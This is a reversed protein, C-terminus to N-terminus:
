QTIALLEIDLNPIGKPAYIMISSAELMREYLTGSAELVFYTSRPKVPIAAPLQSAHALRIGSLASLVINSVDEPSGIKLRQPIKEILEAAPLDAQIGLYFAADGKLLHTDLEGQYYSPKTEILKIDFHNASFVTNIQSNIIKFLTEFSAQPQEHQYIPLDTLKYTASFTLLAGAIRSLEIHLQEPTASPHRYFHMLTAYASNISHLMWFSAMDGSRFEVINETPNSFLSYLTEARARLSNLLGQLESLLSESANLSILPPIFSSESEFTGTSTRRLQMIPVKVYAELPQNDTVLRVAKQLFSIDADAANSFLDTVARNNTTYRASSVTLDNSCNRGHDKLLPLALYVTTTQVDSPLSELPLPAPLEDQHPASYLEGDPFIVSVEVLRLIGSNLSNTDFRLSRLGWLFPQITRSVEHLRAEHYADQRQFHQPCLFLGEGWLLKSHQSM